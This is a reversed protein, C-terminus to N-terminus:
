VITADNPDYEKDHEAQSEMKGKNKVFTGLQYDTFAQRIEAETSMVFPGHRAIPENLPKGALLLFKCGEENDVSVHIGEGNRDFTLMEGEKVVKKESGFSAKGRYVYICVNFDNTLEHVFQSGKTTHVDLYQIPVRTNVVAKVGFAEGAIVRIFFRGEPDKYEPIKEKPVDQYYPDCMKDKRPLNVWLQFGEMTGGKTKMADSPEEDHIIGSGATMWQVDGSRLSGKNGMSDQHQMEGQLMYTVTEFGRHPHWPAGVAEGPKNTVPGFHDLMLFPDFSDLKRSGISRAVIFGAGERQKPAQILEIGKRLLRSASMNETTNHFSYDLVQDEFIVTQNLISSIDESSSIYSLYCVIITILYFYHNYYNYIM